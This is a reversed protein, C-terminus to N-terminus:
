EEDPKLALLSEVMGTMQGREFVVQQDLLQLQKHKTEIEQKISESQQLLEGIRQEKAFAQQLLVREAQSLTEDQPNEKYKDLVAQLYVQKPNPQAQEEQKVEESM